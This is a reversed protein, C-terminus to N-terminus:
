QQVSSYSRVTNFLGSTSSENTYMNKERESNVLFDGLSHKFSLMDMSFDIDLYECVSRITQEPNSVLDEYTFAHCEPHNKHMNHLSTYCIVFSHGVM